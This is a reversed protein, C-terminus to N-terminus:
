THIVDRVVYAQRGSARIRRAAEVSETCFADRGIVFIVKDNPLKALATDLNKLPVNRAGNRHGLAYEDAPRIDVV